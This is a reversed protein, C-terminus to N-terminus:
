INKEIHSFINEAINTNNAWLRIKQSLANQKQSDKILYLIQQGLVSPAISDEIKIAAGEHVLSAINKTQQDDTVNPSPIFITPKGAKALEAISLAGARSVVIDAASYALGINDLYPYIKINLKYKDSLSNSIHDYYSRGTIWIIQIENEIFLSVESLITDNITKTGLSGGLVLLCKKEKDLGFYNISEEKSLSNIRKRLPTGTIVTKSAPFFKAADAVGLFIKKAYKALIRNAVGPHTNQEHIFSPIKMLSAIFVAPASAYGGTGFVFTPSFDKIIQYSQYLSSIVKFPLSLNKIISKRQLGRITLGKIKYGAEPVIQMEMKKSSGVFLIEADPKQKKIEDAFAIAPYIHGGTGGCSILVRLPGKNDEM